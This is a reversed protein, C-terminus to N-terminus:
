NKENSRGKTYLVKSVFFTVPVAVIMTVLSAFDESVINCSVLVITGVTSMFLNPLYTLPFRIFTKWSCKDNFTYKTTLVYSILGSLVFAIIHAVVYEVFTHIITFLVFYNITNSVGVICFRYFQKDLFKIKKIVVMAAAIIVYALALYSVRM